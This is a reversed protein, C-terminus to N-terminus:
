NRQTIRELVELYQDVVRDTSFAQSRRKLVEANIPNDLTELIAQALANSDGIAVLQGYHGYDLIEAPGSPCDTSVVPTGTAMAEAVVNGFGEYKSSLAFVSAKAMYAYPNEVFGPLAIDNDLKLERALQELQSRQEGEGLIMLRASRARRVQAFAKILNFFDKQNVLRGVGLIVPPEGPLFWPHAIPEQSKELVEPTVVPNYIVRIRELPLDTILALDEATGKSAAVLEDSRPYLWRVLQPRLKKLTNSEDNRFQESLYTQVCMVVRTPVRSSWKAWLSSSVIDLASILVSPQERQLYKQLAFTKSLIVPFKSHLDVLRVDPSVQQLYDGAAEALVLDTRLGREALGQALHLMAKEAGGGALAPLFVSVSTNKLRM